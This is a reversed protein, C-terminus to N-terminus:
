GRRAQFHTKGGRELGCGEYFRLTDERVSGTALMVKYCDRAWAVELAGSIVARGFGRRRLAADTVVNEIVGYPRAGRTLNPIVALAGSAVLSGGEEAVLIFIGDSGIIRSWAAEIRM